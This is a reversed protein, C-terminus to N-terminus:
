VRSGYVWSWKCKRPKMYNDIIDALAEENYFGAPYLHSIKDMDVTKGEYMTLCEILFVVIQGPNRVLGLCGIVATQTFKIPLEMKEIRLLMINLLPPFETNSKDLVPIEDFRGESKMGYEAFLAQAFLKTGEEDMPKFHRSSMRPFKDTIKYSSEEEGRPPMTQEKQSSTSSQNTDM